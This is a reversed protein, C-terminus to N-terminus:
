NVLCITPPKCNNMSSAELLDGTKAGSNKCEVKVEGFEATVEQRKGDLCSQLAVDRPQLETASLM